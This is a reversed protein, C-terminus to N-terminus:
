KKTKKPQEQLCPKDESVLCAVLNKVPESVVTLSTVTHAKPLLPYADPLEEQVRKYTRLNILTQRISRYGDDYKEQASEVEQNLKYIQEAEAKTIDFSSSWSDKFIVERTLKFERKHFGNANITIRGGESRTTLWKMHKEGAKRIEVPVRAEFVATAKECFANEAEAIKDKLPKTLKEALKEAIAITIRSM